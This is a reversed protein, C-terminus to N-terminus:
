DEKVRWQSLSSVLNKKRLRARERKNIHQEISTQGQSILRAHWVGLLGLAVAVGACLLFQLIVVNHFFQDELTAKIEGDEANKM